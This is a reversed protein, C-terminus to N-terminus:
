LGGAPIVCHIHPHLLLNQGWTHLIAIMGFRPGLRKPDAAMELASAASATFLLDYFARPNELAFVNLEHPVSFFWTFIAPRCCKANAPQWGVSAHKHRASPAIGTVAPTNM